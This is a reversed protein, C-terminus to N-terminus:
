EWIVGIEGDRRQLKANDLKSLYEFPKGDQIPIFNNDKIRHESQILFRFQSKPLKKAPISCNMCLSGAEPIMIGLDLIQEGCQIKLRCIGTTVLSCRCQVRYYLGQEQLSCTGVTKGEFYVNWTGDM